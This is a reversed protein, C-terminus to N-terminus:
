SRLEALVARAVPEAEEWTMGPRLRPDYLLRVLLRDHETLVMNASSDNFISPRIDDSDNFLGMAQTLEEILCARVVFRGQDTPILAMAGTIVDGKDDTLVRAYCTAESRMEATVQEMALDSSFFHRYIPRYSDLAREFPARSLIVVVNAEDLPALGIELGTLDALDHLHHRAYAIYREEVEGVLAVRMPGEWRTLVHRTRDPDFERYFAVTEFNRLYADDSLEQATPVARCAALAALVALALARLLREATM